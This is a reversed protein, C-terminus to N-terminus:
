SWCNSKSKKKNTNNIIQSGLGKGLNKIGAKNIDKEYIWRADYERFGFKDILVRDDM